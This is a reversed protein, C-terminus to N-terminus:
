RIDTTQTIVIMGQEGNLKAGYGVAIIEALTCPVLKLMVVLKALTRAKQQRSRKTTGACAAGLATAQFELVGLLSYEIFYSKLESNQKISEM